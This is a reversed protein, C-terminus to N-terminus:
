DPFYQTKTRIALTPASYLNNTRIALHQHQTCTTSASQSTYISLALQQYPNRTYISLALQQYPNRTTSERQM